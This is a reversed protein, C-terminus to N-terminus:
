EYRKLFHDYDPPEDWCSRANVIITMPDTHVIWHLYRCNYAVIKNKSELLSLLSSKLTNKRVQETRNQEQNKM